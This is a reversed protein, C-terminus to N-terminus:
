KSSYWGVVAVLVTVAVGLITWYIQCRRHAEERNAKRCDHWSLWEQCFGITVNRETSIPIAGPPGASRALAARVQERVQEVGQREPAQYWRRAEVGGLPSREYPFRWWQWYLGM